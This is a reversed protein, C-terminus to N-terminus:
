SAHLQGLHSQNVVSRGRCIAGISEQQLQTGEEFKLAATIISSMNARHLNAIASIVKLPVTVMQYIM